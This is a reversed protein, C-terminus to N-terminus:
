EETTAEEEGAEEGEEGEVVEEEDEDDESKLASPETINAIVFDRDTIMPRSGEPLDIDSIHVIDGIDLNELDVILSEPINDATVKLEVESRM